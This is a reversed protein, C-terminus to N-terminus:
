ESFQMIEWAANDEWVANEVLMVDIAYEPFGFLVGRHRSVLEAFDTIRENTKLSKLTVPGGRLRRILMEVECRSKPCKFQIVGRAYHGLGTANHKFIHAIAVEHLEHLQGMQGEEDDVTMHLASYFWTKTYSDPNPM